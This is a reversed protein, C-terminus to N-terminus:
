RAVFFSGIGVVSRVAVHILGGVGFFGAHLCAVSGSLQPAATGLLAYLGFGSDNVRETGDLADSAFTGNVENLGSVHPLGRAVQRRRQGAVPGRQHDSLM